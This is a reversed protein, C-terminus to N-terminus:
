LMIEALECDIIFVESIQCLIHNNKFEEAEAITKFTAMVDDDETMIPICKSSDGDKKCIIVYM